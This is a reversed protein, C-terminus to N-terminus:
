VALQCYVNTPMLHSLSDARGDRNHGRLFEPDLGICDRNAEAVRRDRWLVHHGASRSGHRTQWRDPQCHAIQARLNIPKGLHM